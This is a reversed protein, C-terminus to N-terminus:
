YERHGHNLARSFPLKSFLAQEALKFPAPKVKTPVAAFQQSVILPLVATMSIVIWFPKESQASIFIAAASFGVLGDQLGTALSYLYRHKILEAYHRVKQLLVFTSICLALYLLFGFLGTEAALHIYTNHAEYGDLRETVHTAASLRKFNGVGIGFFPHQLASHIGFSWLAEHNQVSVIDGYGPSLLRKVPSVPSFLLVLLMLAAVFLSQLKKESRLLVLTVVACLGALGGRSGAAVFALFTLLLSIRYFWKLIPHNTTSILQYALPIVLLAACAFFNGDGAVWGVRASGFGMKQYERLSYLSALDLAGILALATYQLKHLSDVCCLVAFFIALYSILPQAITFLTSVNSVFICSLLSWITFALFLRAPWNSFFGPVTTRLVLALLTYVLCLIGLYKAITFGAVEEGFWPHKPVASLLVVIYFIIL